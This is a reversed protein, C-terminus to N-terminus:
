QPAQMLMQSKRARSRIRPEKMGTRCSDACNMGGPKIVLGWCPMDCIEVASECGQWLGPKECSSIDTKTEVDDRGGNRKGGVSGDWVGSWEEKELM